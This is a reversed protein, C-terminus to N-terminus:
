RDGVRLLRRVREVVGAQSAVLDGVSAQNKTALLLSNSRVQDIVDGFDAGEYQAQEAPSVSILHDVFTPMLRNMGHIFRILQQRRTADDPMDIHDAASLATPCIGSLRFASESLSIVPKGRWVADIVSSGGNIVVLESLDILDSTHESSGAEIYRINRVACFERYRRSAHEGLSKGVRQHWIPHGRITWRAWPVGIRAQLWEMAEFNDRWGTKWDPHGWVEYMSSPLVLVEHPRATGNGTSSNKVSRGIQFDRWENSGLREVRRRVVNEAKTIDAQCLDMKGVSQGLEQMLKLGLCNEHPILMLGNGFWSREYSAFDVGAFRAADMVGRLIDIRGNFLLILDVGCEAIWRLTSHYGVRYAHLLGTAGPGQTIDETLEARMLAARNSLMAGEEGDITLTKTSWDLKFASVGDGAKRAGLRCKVCHELGGWGLTQYQKDYCSVRSGSCVLESVAYGAEVALQVLYDRQAGHPRWPYIQAVGIHRYAKGTRM